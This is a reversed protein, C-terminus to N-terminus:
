AVEGKEDRLELDATQQTLAAAKASKWDGFRNCLWRDSSILGANGHDLQVVRWRQYDSRTADVGLLRLARALEALAQREDIVHGRRHALRRRTNEDILGAAALANAWCVFRRVMLASAAQAVVEGRAAAARVRERRFRDYRLYTLPGECAVAAERLLGILVERTYAHQLQRPRPV